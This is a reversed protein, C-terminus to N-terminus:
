RVVKRVQNGNRIIYVGRGLGRLDVNDNGRAVVAGNVNYVEIAGEASVVGYAYGIGNALEVRNVASPIATWEGAENGTLAFYYDDGPYQTEVSYVANTPKALYNDFEYESGLCMFTVHTFNIDQELIEKVHNEHLYFLIVDEVGAVEGAFGQVLIANNETMNKNEFWAAYVGEAKWENTVKLLYSTSYTINEPYLMKAEGVLDGNGLYIGGNVFSLNGTQVGNNNNFIIKEPATTAWDDTGTWKWINTDVEKECAVGPWATSNGDEIWVHAYVNEWGDINFFFAVNEGETYTLEPVTLVSAWKAVVDNESWTRDGIENGNEDKEVYAWAPGAAYKYKTSETVGELEITFNTADVKTMKTFSWGNMEGAIYCLETGEPVTVTYTLSVGYVSWNGDSEGWGTVTYCNKTGDYTLDATKNWLVGSNFNNDTTGPNMRGFIVNQYDGSPVTATYIDKGDVKTMDIWVAASTGNCLYMAFRAGDVNWTGPNLYLVESGKLNVAMAPLVMLIALLLTTFKKM